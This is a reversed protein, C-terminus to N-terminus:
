WAQKLDIARDPGPILIPNLRGHGCHCPVLLEPGAHSARCLSVIFPVAADAAVPSVACACETRLMVRGTTPPRPDSEDGEGSVVVM